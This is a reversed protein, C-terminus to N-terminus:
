IYKDFKKGFVSAYKPTAASTITVPKLISELDTFGPSTNIAIFPSFKSPLSKIEEATALPATATIESFSKTQWTGTIFTSLTRMNTCSIARWKLDLIVKGTTAIVPLVPLVM